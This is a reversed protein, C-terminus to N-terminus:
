GDKVIWGCAETATVESVEFSMPQGIEIQILQFNEGSFHQIRYVASITALPPHNQIQISM